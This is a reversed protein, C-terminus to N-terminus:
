DSPITCPKSEAFLSLAGSGEHALLRRKLELGWAFGRLSGDAALVRHCPVLICLPNAGIAAGVTRAEGPMGLATAIEGYSVTRGFPIGRLHEWVALQFLTAPVEIAGDYRVHEGDAYRSLFEAAAQATRSAADSAHGGNETVAGLPGRGVPTVARLGRSTAEVVFEGLATGVRVRAVENADDIRTLM